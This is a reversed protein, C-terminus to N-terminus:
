GVVTEVFYSLGHEAHVSKGPVVRYRNTIPSDPRLSDYYNDTLVWVTVKDSEIIKNSAQAASSM